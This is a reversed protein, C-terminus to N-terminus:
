RSVTAPTVKISLAAPMLKEKQLVWASGHPFQSLYSLTSELDLQLLTPELLMLIGLAARYFVKSS